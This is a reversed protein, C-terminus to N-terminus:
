SFLNINSPCKFLVGALITHGESLQNHKNSQEALLHHQRQLTEKCLQLEQCSQNFDDKQKQEVMEFRFIPFTSPHNTTRINSRKVNEENQRKQETRLAAVQTDLKNTIMMVLDMSMVQTDLKNTIMMVLDVM